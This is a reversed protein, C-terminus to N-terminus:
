QGPPMPRRRRMRREELERQWIETRRTELMRQRQADPLEPDAIADGVRTILRAIGNRLGRLRADVVDVKGQTDLRQYGRMHARVSGECEAAMTQAASWAAGTVSAAEHEYETLECVRGVLEDTSVWEGPAMARFVVLCADRMAMVGKARFPEAPESM